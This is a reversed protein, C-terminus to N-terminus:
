LRLNSLCLSVLAVKAQFPVAASPHADGLARSSLQRLLCRPQQPAEPPQQAQGAPHHGHSDAFNHSIGGGGSAIGAHVAKEGGQCIVSPVVRGAPSATCRSLPDPDPLQEPQRIKAASTSTPPRPAKSIPEAGPSQTPKTATARKDAPAKPDSGQPLSSTASQWFRSYDPICLAQRGKATNLNCPQYGTSSHTDRLLAIM